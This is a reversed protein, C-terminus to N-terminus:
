EEVKMVMAVNSGDGGGGGQRAGGGGGSGGGGGHRSGALLRNSCLKERTRSSAGSRRSAWIRCSVLSSPLVVEVRALHPAEVVLLVVEVVMMVVVMM